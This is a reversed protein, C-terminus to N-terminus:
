ISILRVAPSNVFYNKKEIYLLPLHDPGLAHLEHGEPEGEEEGDAGNDPEEVAEEHFIEEDRYPRVCACEQQIGDATNRKGRKKIM